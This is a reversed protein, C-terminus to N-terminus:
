VDTDTDELDDSDVDGDDDHDPVECGDDDAEDLDEDLDTDDSGDRLAVPDGAVEDGPDEPEVTGCDPDISDRVKASVCKGMSNRQNRNTGYLADFDDRGLASRESLCDQAASSATKAAAGRCTKMAHKGYLDKFAANGMEKHEAKCASKALQKGGPSANAAATPIALVALAAIVIMMKKM